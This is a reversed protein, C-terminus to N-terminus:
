SFRRLLWGIMGAVGYIATLRRSRPLVLLPPDHNEPCPQWPRQGQLWTGSRLKRNSPSKTESRVFAITQLSIPSRNTVVKVIFLPLFLSGDGSRSGSFPLPPRRARLRTRSLLHLRRLFLPHDCLSAASNKPNPRKFSRLKIRVTRHYTARILRHWRLPMRPWRTIKFYRAENKIVFVIKEFLKIRIFGMFNIYLVIRPIALFM